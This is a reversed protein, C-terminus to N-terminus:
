PTVQWAELAAAPVKLMRLLANTHTKMPETAKGDRGPLLWGRRLWTQGHLQVAAAGVREKFQPSSSLVRWTEESVKRCAILGGGRDAELWEWTASDPIPQGNHDTDGDDSRRGQVLMTIMAEWADTAPDTEDHGSTLMEAWCALINGFVPPAQAQIVRFAVNLAAAAAALPTRWAQLPALDPDQELDHVDKIFAAWDRWVLEAVAHGFLGAGAEWAHELLAARAQGDDSRPQAGLPAYANADAWLVRLRAGAHKFDPIAEGALLLAGGLEGGGHTKGDAGGVTYRQGNAFAYAANEIRKPEPCTHAEDIFLPLGGLQELGQFIGAPTTRGAEMRLPQRTPAGWCGLAFQLATTKGSGSGGSLYLVPYRRPRMKALAPAALSLGLALWFPWAEPWAQLAESIATPYANHDDGIQVAPHGTYRVSESFGVAGAPLVLGGNVLGLRDSHQRRPITDINAQVSEVLLAQVDKINRPHIAAGAAGVLASFSKSDSLAAYPITREGHVTGRGNWSITATQEGSVLDVGLERVFINGSYIPRENGRADRQIITQASVDYGPPLYLKEGTDPHTLLPVCASATVTGLTTLLAELEVATHGQALYDDVGIKPGNALNPLHLVLVEAVGYRATLLRALRQVAQQVGKNFRVDGDPAIVVQRGEWAILEMDALATKGGQANRSRWGFVGNESIPVISSGYLSALSDAKKAGETIWIPISPDALALAYRPLVDFINTTHKPYEYKIPKGSDDSRPLDPRLVWTHPSPDGLRYVPFALAGAHLVTKLLKDSHIGGAIQRWDYICGPAISVYGREVIVAPDIASAALMQAHQPALTPAQPTIM